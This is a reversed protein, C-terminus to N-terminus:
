VWTALWPPLDHFYKLLTGRLAELVYFRLDKHPHLRCSTRKDVFYVLGDLICFDPSDVCPGSELDTYISSIVKDAQQLSQLRKKDDLVM